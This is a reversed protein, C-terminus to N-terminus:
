EGAEKLKALLDDTKAGAFFKIGKEKLKAMVAKRDMEGSASENSPAGERYSPAELDFSPDIPVDSVFQCIAMGSKKDGREAWGNFAEFDKDGEKVIDGPRRGLISVNVKIM